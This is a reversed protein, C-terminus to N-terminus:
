LFCIRPNIQGKEEEEVDKKKNQAVENAMVLSSEISLTDQSVQKSKNINSIQDGDKYKKMTM